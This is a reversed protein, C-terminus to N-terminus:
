AGFRVTTRSEDETQEQLTILAVLELTLNRKEPPAADLICEYADVLEFDSGIQHKGSILIFSTNSPMMSAIMEHLEMYNYMPPICRTFFPTGSSSNAHPEIRIRSVRAFHANLKEDRVKYVNDTGHVLNSHSGRCIDDQAEIQKEILQRQTQNESMVREFETYILKM